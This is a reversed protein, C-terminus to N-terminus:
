LCYKAIHNIEFGIKYKGAMVFTVINVDDLEEM